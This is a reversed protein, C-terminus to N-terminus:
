SAPGSSPWRCSGRGPRARHGRRPRGAGAAGHRRGRRAAAHVPQRRGHGHQPDVLEGDPERGPALLPVDDQEALRTLTITAGIHLEDGVREIRDLGARRLGMVRRPLSIGENILPMAVTGGAMVLLEPGHEALLGLAEPVSAPLYYHSVTVRLGGHRSSLGPRAPGPRDAIPRAAGRLALRAPGATRRHRGVRPLGHRDRRPRRGDSAERLEFDAHGTITGMSGEVTGDLGAREPEVVDVLTVHTRYSGVAGPLRLTIRGDYQDPAVQEVAECGPIVAMLVRPDRIAAFVAERPAEFRHSGHINVDPGEAGAGGRRPRPAGGDGARCRRPGSRSTGRRDGRPRRLARERTARSAGTRERSVKGLTNIIRMFQVLLFNGAAECVADHFDIDLTSFRDADAVAGRLEALLADLHAVQAPTIREAALRVNGVEVVRRTEIVQALAVPDKSFVFDLHSVLQQPELATIYTGAGQRIEVVNMISLARLAERLVPRSVHMM